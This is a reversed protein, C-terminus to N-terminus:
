LLTYRLNEFKQQLIDIKEIHREAYARLEPINKNELLTDKQNELAQQYGALETELKWRLVDLISLALESEKIQLAEKLTKIQAKRADISVESM